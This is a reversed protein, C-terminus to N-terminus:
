ATVLAPLGSLDDIVAAPGAPLREQTKGFRNLWVVRFGFAAAGAVDWGNSSVFGIAEAPLGLADVAVRYTRPDPKFVGAPHVSLTRDLLPALGAHDVAAGLMDPSGNSLIATVLGASRLQDLAEAVEPYADLSFYLDLLTGRLDPDDLGLDAMAFDLAEGTVSWFDTYHGMLSRLWAYELQKQRWIAGLTGADPGLRGALRATPAMVDFLTGYADFVVARVGALPPSVSM